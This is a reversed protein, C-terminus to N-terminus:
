EEIIKFEKNEGQLGHILQEGTIQKKGEMQVVVLQLWDDVCKVLLMNNHFTVHGTKFDGSPGFHKPIVKSKHIKVKGKNTVTFACPWPHFARILNHTEKAPKQFDVKAMEKTILKAYTAEQENQVTEEVTREKLGKMTELLLEAGVKSLSEYLEGFTVEDNLPVAKRLLMPGADMKEVLKMTTVGAEKEGNLISYQIPAAGRYKPLLSGHVNVCGLRPINLINKGLFQAYAVVVVVDAMYDALKRPENEKNINEPQFVPVKYQLALDKVPPAKLELGRGAPRDPQTYVAVVNTVEPNDLLIKLCPVAFDPTGM